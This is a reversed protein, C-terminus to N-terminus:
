RSRPVGLPPAIKPLCDQTHVKKYRPVRDREPRSHVTRNRAHRHPSTGRHWRVTLQPVVDTSRRHLPDWAQTSPHRMSSGIPPFHMLDSRPLQARRRYPHAHDLVARHRALRKQQRSRMCPQALQGIECRPRNQHMQLCQRFHNPNKNAHGYM